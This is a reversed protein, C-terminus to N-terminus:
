PAIKEATWERAERFGEKADDLAKRSAAKVENWTSEDATEARKVQIDVSKAKDKLREMKPALDARAKETSNAIKASLKDMEREIDRMESKLSSVFENKKDYSFEVEVGKKDSAEARAAVAPNNDNSSNSSSQNCGAVLAAIGLALLNKTKM